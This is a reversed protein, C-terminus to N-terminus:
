QEAPKKKNSLVSHLAIRQQTGKWLSCIFRAGDIQILAESYSQATTQVAGCANTNIVFGFYVHASSRFKKPWFLLYSQSEDNPTYKSHSNTTEIIIPVVCMLWIHIQNVRSIIVWTLRKHDIIDDSASARKWRWHVSSIDMCYRNPPIQKCRMNNSQHLIVETWCINTENLILVAM